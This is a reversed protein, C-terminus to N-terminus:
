IENEKLKVDSQDMKGVRFGIENIKNKFANEVQELNSTKELGLIQYYNKTSFYRRSIRLFKNM